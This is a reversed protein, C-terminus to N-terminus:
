RHVHEDDTRALDAPVERALQDLAAVLHRHDLVIGPAIGRHLLLELVRCLVPVPRLQPHELARSDLPRVHHDCDGAVVLVVDEDALHGALLVAHLAHDRAAVVRAVQLVELQQADLGRHRGGVQDEPQDLVLHRAVAEEM